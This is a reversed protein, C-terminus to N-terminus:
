LILDKIAKLLRDMAEQLIEKSTAINLRMFGDGNKGFDTGSNLALKAKNVFLDELENQTLDLGKCDLWLLFTAESDVAKIQLINTKLFERVFRKNELLYEKVEDVWYGCKSYATILAEISFINGDELGCKTLELKYARKLSDNFIITYSDNLGAVNFSKSPSHLYITIDKAEDIKPLPTHPKFTIDSHIEDSVIIVGEKKCINVIEQLEDQSWVRTTPNHPSCLLFMKAEKAKDRFDDFDISYKSDKYILKNNLLERRNRKVSNIFPPYIPTQVIIKDGVNSFAKIALNISNVVGFSPIIDDKEVKFDFRSGLWNIIANFYEDPYITYPYIPRKARNILAESIESAVEFDMDAVWLPLLDKKGFKRELSEIKSSNLGDKNAIKM